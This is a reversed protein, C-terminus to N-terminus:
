AIVCVFTYTYVFKVSVIFFSWRRKLYSKNCVWVVVLLLVLLLYFVLSETRREGVICSRDLVFVSFFLFGGSSEFGVGGLVRGGLYVICSRRGVFCVEIIKFYIQYCRLVMLHLMRRLFIFLLLLYSFSWGHTTESAVHAHWLLVALRWNVFWCCCCTIKNSLHCGWSNKSRFKVKYSWCCFISSTKLCIVITFLHRNFRFQIRFQTRFLFM